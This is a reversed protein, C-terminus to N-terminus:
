KNPLIGQSAASLGIIGCVCVNWWTNSSIIEWLLASLGLNNM